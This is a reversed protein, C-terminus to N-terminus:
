MGGMAYGASAAIAVVDVVDTVKGNLVASGLLGHHADKTSLAAREEIVDLIGDVILGLDHDGSSYVIVHIKEAPESPMAGLADGLRILPLL